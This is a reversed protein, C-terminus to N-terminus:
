KNYYYLLLLSLLSLTEAKEYKERNYSYILYITQIPDCMLPTIYSSFPIKINLLPLAFSIIETLTAVTLQYEPNVIACASAIRTARILPYIIM